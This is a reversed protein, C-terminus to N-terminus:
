TCTSIWSLTKSWVIGRKGGGGGCVCSHDIESFPVGHTSDENDKVRQVRRSYIYPWMLSRTTAAVMYIYAWSLNTCKQAFSLLKVLNSPLGRWSLHYHSYAVGKSQCWRRSLCSSATSIQLHDDILQPSGFVFSKRAWLSFTNEM